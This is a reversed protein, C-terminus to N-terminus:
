GGVVKFTSRSLTILRAKVYHQLPLKFYNKEYLKRNRGGVGEKCPEYLPIM